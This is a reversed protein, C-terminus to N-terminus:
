LLRVIDFGSALDAAVRGRVRQLPQFTVLRFQRRLYHSAFYRSVLRRDLGANPPAYNLEIGIIRRARRCRCLPV